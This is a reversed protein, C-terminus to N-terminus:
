AIWCVAATLQDDGRADRPHDDGPTLGAQEDGIALSGLQKGQRADGDICEGAEGLLGGRRVPVERDSTQRCWAVM